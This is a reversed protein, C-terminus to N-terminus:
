SALYRARLVRRMVKNSATRPLADIARAESLRFLPNLQRKLAATLDEHLGERPAGGGETVVYVVLRGPGGGPEPVSIAATESVGAVRNLVREIEASSVKIGGLNMTDDARGHARYFGGELRELYDGHSRLPTTGEAGACSHEDKAIRGSGFYVEHHERNLLAQSLGISPPVLFVEGSTTESGDEGQLELALGLSCTTFLSPAAKQVLTGTLYGGGIETGGCYEVVPRYGQARSMLYLMDSPSSCEGTSSFCRIASWDLGKTCDGARWARVLSPVVGLMTVGADQVFRTFAMGTPSGEFLAISAGNILSAYILWPGMMWGLNTPWCVVDGPQIDHHLFGDAAAKIPTLQTWPIAKPEGTTGSSFLINTHAEAEGSVPEFVGEGPLFAAYAVDGERLEVRLEGSKAAALVIARPAQAARVREYLPLIKPGRLIVDQTFIGKAGAIDLRTKIEEAAFSDAISVAAMGAQVIGLYIVVSELSMPMDIAIAEGAAFGLARLGADVRASRAKLEERSMRRLGAEGEGRAIVAPADDLPRFCANAINYRAGGLWRAEEVGESLDLTRPAPQEFPIGLREIVAAWFAGRQKVSLAYLAAYDSAGLARALKTLNAAEITESTPFWAPRAEEPPTGHYCAHYCLEHVAFPQDPELTRAVREFRAEAGQQSAWIGELSAALALAASPDLGVAELEARPIM